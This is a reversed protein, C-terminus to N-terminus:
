IGSLNGVGGVGLVETPVKEETTNNIGLQGSSNYGWCDVNGASTLACTSFKAGVIGVIGSIDGTGGVGYVQVPEKQLTTSNIGLEGYNNYGWCYVYGAATLACTHYGGTAISQVTSLDGSGGVGLVEVPLKQQTTSNNGLQGYANYGWCYTNGAASIACVHLYGASIAVINSLKGVGGVGAVEVPEKQQTTNGIGLQGYGNYGWCYVNGAASLACSFTAGSVVSVINSLNGVGSVGLVEVPTHKNTTSNIGLQGNTNLGWCYVNGTTTGGCSFNQGATVSSIGAIVGVGGVGLVQVPEKQNSTTNNGLQGYGNYGTCFVNGPGDLGCMHNGGAAIGTMNAVGQTLVPAKETTTTNNGLQGYGNYGWCYFNGGLSYTTMGCAFLGLNNAALYGNNQVFVASSCAPTLGSSSGGIYITGANGTYNVGSFAASGSAAALPNTTAALTGSAPNSCASDTYAALTISNTGSTDANGYADVLQIVPQTAFNNGSFVNLSPQTSFALQTAPQPTVSVASSCSSVLGPASAGLYITQALTYQVGSFDAVGGSATVPNTSVTFTGTTLPVLCNPDSYANLTVVDNASPQVVGGANEISIVPQAGFASGAIATSSPETSFVLQLVAIDFLASTASTLGAASATFTYGNGASNISLGSFTAVGSAAAVTHTGSLVGAAPNTGIAITVNGSYSTVINGGADEATVQISPAIAFTSLATSPQVTFALQSAAGLTINFSNSVAGSLGSSSATLSYAAGMTNISIGSFTAVGNVAAVTLTGSLTGTTTPNNGIALTVNGNFTTSLNGGADQASVQISPSISAGAATNAPQVTFALQAPIGTTINFSASTAGTLGAASATLTYGVGLLDITLDDFSSVGNFAAVTLTGYLTGASPNTGIAVTIDGSYGTVVNGYADEASVLITPSFLSMSGTNTPQSTFALQSAAGPSITFSSSTAGTLGSASANLTYGTTALNISLTSFSAVGSAASVSTTGSLTGGDPNTGIAVTVSGSYGTALNGGADYATVQVAPSISAGAIASSPQVTFALQSAPGVLINFATSTTGTLGTAAATLTYGTGAKDISLNSFGAVGSSAANTLTGSLTGGSPNTGIAVTVNGSYSPVPNGGADEATVQVSPSVANTSTTNSPQATFALKTPPGVTINFASSTAGSLGTASATLTYGTGILNIKLSSFSAVGSSAAVTTTGSLTGSGPNTGIAVTVNGSYSTVANGGADEASVQVAPSISNTATTNNPQSSFVLQAAAGVSINFASSTANSLGSASATLTYGNGAKDISLGSFSSVGSFASVTTTGSLTGSNPNNAIAITISGSYGSVPNGGADQAAVQIAPSISAMSVTNSPQVSFVLQAAPGASINFTSSTAGTLGSASATLTYGNGAKNISLNSFSSIGGSAAVTTTGSLVGSNPNTGIAITINGSYSTALNGNADEASALVAPSVSTASVTNTPQATFVLQTASGPNITFSSSTAGTLGTASTALTYGAAAKNISLGSFSAVGSSAAVTTTGSLTGGAPNTGIAMTINGSFTTVLNGGADEVSIQVAPSISSAATTDSPQASFVLQSAIGSSINFSSSTAGSLGTAAATLTYGNGSRNISLGSFSAVGSSAAGTTTGSLTGGSPNSGIAVTVNGSFSTAVNGAADEASVQVSPSISSAATTNSPQVTFALQTASGASINFSSSTASSLGSATASLTYGNGSKNISLGSFSSIGGSAAVTTTGSLTGGGPNAGFSLSISGSYSTVLNGSADEVSVQVAPSIASLATSNSPQATFALQSAAGPAITFSSSTTGTLGTASAVLTYGTGSKNISLNSFSSAGSSAAVTTTGSLTGSGPNAGIAVTINGSFGTALNGGADQAVVQVAPTISTNATANSPQSLFGLHTAAGPTVTITPLSSSVASGGIASTITTATGAALGTFIASYTGNGNDTVSGISGTSTGGSNGFAVSLGGSTILNGNVDKATLTITDASGSTDTGSSVSVASQAVSAAGPNVQITPSTSTVASGQITADISTASGAAVGTFTATYTGDGNDTVSSITGTSSGGVASFTVSAGGINVRNGSTDYTVLTITDAAGSADTASSVQIQSLSNSINPPYASITPLASTIAQGNATASLTVPSGAHTATFTSIFSGDSQIQPTSITGATSGGSYSFQVNLGSQTYSGGSQTMPVFHITATSGVEISTQSVSLTSRSDSLAPNAGSSSSLPNSKACSNLGAATVLLLSITGTKLINSGLFGREMTDIKDPFKSRFTLERVLTDGRVCRMHM